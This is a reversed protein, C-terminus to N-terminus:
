QKRLALARAYVDRKTRGTRQAVVAAAEAPRLTTLADRLLADTADDDVIQDSESPPGVVIVVEGKPPAAAYRAALEGLDGRVTEEFHKTLERAVVAPRTGLGKALDALCEGLRQPAELVVLTAPVARLAEIAARRQGSKAPLFGVYFFKDTPLGAVTLAALVSSAGPIPVVRVGAAAAERVLKFGPDSILPTGADSVLAVKAGERLKALLHPRARDANADHYPTTPVHIDYHTLFKATVRTDECAVLDVRRLVNLARLTIDQLNGIPTAVIYLGAGLPQDVELDASSEMKASM